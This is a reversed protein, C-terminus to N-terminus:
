KATELQIVTYIGGIKDAVFKIKDGAKLRDLMAPDKVRFVMTMAPMGLNKLQGHKITLKGANKNVEKIEGDTLTQDAASKADTNKHHADDAYAGISTAWGMNVALILALIKM